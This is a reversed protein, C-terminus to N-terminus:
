CAPACGLGQCCKQLLSQKRPEVCRSDAVISLKRLALVVHMASEASGTPLALTLSSTCTTTEHSEPESVRDRLIAPFLAKVADRGLRRWFRAHLAMTYAHVRAVTLNNHQWARMTSNFVLLAPIYAPTGGALASGPEFELPAADSLSVGRSLPALVSLDALWGTALPRVRAQQEQPVLMVAGNAGSAAHKMLTSVYFLTSPASSLDTDIAGFAHCADVLLWSQPLVRRMDQGWRGVDRLLTQQSQFTVQSVCVLNFPQSGRAPAARADAAAAALFREVFSEVPEVSVTEFDIDLNLKPAQDALQKIQRNLSFFESDTTLVRLYGETVLRASLLKSVLDFTNHGFEVHCRYASAGPTVGPDSSQVLLEDNEEKHKIHLMRRIHAAAEPVIRAGFHDWVLDGRQFLKIQQAHVRDAVGASL